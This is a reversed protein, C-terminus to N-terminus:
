PLRRDSVRGPRHFAAALRALALAGLLLGFDRLAIDWYMVHGAAAGIIVLNAIIGALWAAVVYAAYRPSLLVLLGATIEM